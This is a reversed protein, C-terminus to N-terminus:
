ARVLRYGALRVIALAAYAILSQMLVFWFVPLLNTASVPRALLLTIITFIVFARLMVRTASVRTLMLYAAFGPIAALIAASAVLEILIQPDSKLRIVIGLLIAASTVVAMLRALSFQWPSATIPQIEGALILRWGWARFRWICWLLVGGHVAMAIMWTGAADYRGDYRSAAFGSVATTGLFLLVRFGFSQRSYGCVLTVLGQQAFALALGLVAAPQPWASAAVNTWTLAVANLVGAATLFLVTLSWGVFRPSAHPRAAAFHPAHEV